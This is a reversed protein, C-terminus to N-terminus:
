ARSKPVDLEVRVPKKAVKEALLETERLFHTLSAHADNVKDALVQSRQELNVYKSRLTKLDQKRAKYSKVLDACEHDTMLKRRDAVLTTAERHTRDLVNGKTVNDIRELVKREERQKLLLKKREVAEQLSRLVSRLSPYGETEGVFTTFPRKLYESLKERIEPAIPYEGRGAMAELKRLPRGLRRFGSALLDGRLEKLRSSIKKLEAIKPNVALSEISKEIETIQPGLRSIEGALRTQEDVQNVLSGKLEYIKEVRDHVEELRRLLGGEKSFVEWGHEGLRRLKDISANLSMMDFIYYPRIHGIWRDRVRAADNALRSTADNFQRLGEYTQPDTLATASLLDQLETCMRTVSRASKYLARDTRKEASDKESKSVLDAIVERLSAVQANVDNRTKEINKETAVLQTRVVHRLWEELEEPGMADAM